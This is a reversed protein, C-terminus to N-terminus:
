FTQGTSTDALTRAFLAVLVSFLTWAPLWAPLWIGLYTSLAFGCRSLLPHNAVKRLETFIHEFDKKNLTGGEKRAKYSAIVKDYIGRQAPLMPLEEMKETKPTLQGLVESKLRRLIFPAMIRQVKDRAADMDGAEQDHRSV